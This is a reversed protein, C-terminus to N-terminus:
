TDENNCGNFSRTENTFYFYSRILSFSLFFSLFFFFFLPCVHRVSDRVHSVSLSCLADARIWFNGLYGPFSANSYIRVCARSYRHMRGTCTRRPAGPTAISVWPDLFDKKDRSGRAYQSATNRIRTNESSKRRQGDRLSCYPSFSLSVSFSLSLSLSLSLLEERGGQQWERKGGRKWRTERQRQRADTSAGRCRERTEASRSAVSWRKIYIAVCPGLARSLLLSARSRSLAPPSCFLTHIPSLAVRSPRLFM